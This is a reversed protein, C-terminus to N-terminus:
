MVIVSQLFIQLKEEEILSKKKQVCTFGHINSSIIELCDIFVVM